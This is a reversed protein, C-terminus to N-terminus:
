LRRQIQYQVKNMKAGKVTKVQRSDRKLESKEKEVHKVVTKIHLGQEKELVVAKEMKEVRERELQKGVMEIEQTKEKEM